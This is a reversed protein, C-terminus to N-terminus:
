SVQELYYPVDVVVTNPRFFLLLKLRLATQNHLFFEWFHRPVFEPLVVTIAEGPYQQSIANIYAVLPPILARYPSEVIVLPVEIGSRDWRRKLYAGADPDDTVHLATVDSSIGRAFELAKHTAKDIRSLPVIVHPQKPESLKTEPWDITLADEVTRYHRQIAWMVAIMVPVLVFVMWAGLGFKAVGVVAAVVGTTSAGVGNIAARWQWGREGERLKWWHRVMGAQSLTFAIFVGITYLPILNTVSGQFAVFLVLAVVGLVGIGFSFALRDGRYRFQSPLYRDSALISALRPFGNFATNAALILLLATSFQMVYHYPTGEGVLTRTLQSLVTEQESPDPLIGIQGALFSMGLFIVAFLSGM